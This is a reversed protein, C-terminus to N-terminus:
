EVQRPSHGKAIGHADELLGLALQAHGIRDAAVELARRLGKLTRQRALRPQDESRQHRHVDDEAHEVLAEHVRQRDNRGQGRRPETRQNQEPRHPLVEADHAQDAHHQQNADDLLVTDQQDVKRQLSLAFMAHARLLSNM